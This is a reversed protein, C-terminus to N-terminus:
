EVFAVKVSRSERGRSLRVMYVGPRLTSGEVLSVRHTGAGLSGVERFRVRRGALDLLELATPSGDPLSFSVSLSRRAPNPWAGTLAFVAGARPADVGFQAITFVADSADQRNPFTSDQVRVRATASYPATVTWTFSTGAQHAAITRWNAGGDLSVQVDVALVGSGKTWAITHEEGDAWAEGGNPSTVAISTSVLSGCSGALRALNGATNQLALLDPLGDENFDGIVLNRPQNPTATAVAAAFTGDGVGAAANGLLVSFTRVSSGNAVTLDSVGDGNWDAVTLGYPTTGCAVNVAAAFTGDGVGAAGNGRLVSVSASGSNGVALDTIGDGNWDGTVISYPQSQCPYTVAAAFTGDGRGATGHGLLVRAGSTTAAAIDWVGDDNFDDVIVAQTSGTAFTATPTFTGTGIGAAGDGHLLRLGGSGSAVALDTIGDEDFDAPAADIPEGTLPVTQGAAFTGDGVGAAGNGLLVSLTADGTNLAVLDAIGDGNWDGTALGAPSTGVPATTPAAFTGNGVGATGQGLLVSVTSTGLTAVAVDAIGDENFDERVGKMPTAGTTYSAATGLACLTGKVEGLWDTTDATRIGRVRYWYTGFGTDPFTTTVSSGRRPSNFDLPVTSRHVEYRLLGAVTGATWTLNAGTSTPTFVLSRPPQPFPVTRCIASEAGERMVLISAPHFDLRIGNAVGALLHCYSMITGKGGAPLQRPASNCTGETTYCTDLLAGIPAYGSSQWFCSHTHPSGFNHGIEHAIVEVDWTATTTPYTYAADIASVAYGTTGCLGNLYAIGGGLNRGSVLHAISRSVGPRNNTWWNQFEPLQTGTSTATYPDAAVTWFNLYPVKLRTNIDREYILSVTAMVNTMYTTAAALNDGFKNHYLEWDCDVAVDFWLRQTTALTTLPEAAPKRLGNPALWAPEGEDGCQWTAPTGSPELASEPALAHMPAAKGFGAATEAPAIVLREGGRDIVGSVGDRSMTVVAWSTPEGEIGGRFVQVDVGAPRTGNGDTVFVADSTVVDDPSLLLVLDGDAGPVVLRGGGAARFEAIGDPSVDLLTARSEPRSSLAIPLRDASVNARAFVSAAAHAIGPALSAAAVALALLFM